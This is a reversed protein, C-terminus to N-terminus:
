VAAVVANIVLRKGAVRAAILSLITLLGQVLFVAPKIEGILKPSSLFSWGITILLILFLGSFTDRYLLFNRHAQSVEQFDKVPKYIQQYWLSNRTNGDIDENFVEPWRQSVIDYEIRPDKRCLQDVRCAPLEDRYRTFVLKHKTNHPLLNALLVLLASLVLGSGGVALTDIMGPLFFFGFQIFASFLLSALMILFISKTNEQKLDRAM